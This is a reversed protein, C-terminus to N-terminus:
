YYIWYWVTKIGDSDNFELAPAPFKLINLFRFLTKLFPSDTKYKKDLAFHYSIGGYIKNTILDVDTSLNQYRQQDYLYYMGIGIWDYKRFGKIIPADLFGVPNRYQGVSLGFDQERFLGGARATGEFGGALSPNMAIETFDFLTYHFADQAKMGMSSFALFCFVLISRYNM